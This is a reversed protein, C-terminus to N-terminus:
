VDMRAARPIVLAGRFYCGSDENYNFLLEIYLEIARYEKLTYAFLDLLVRM